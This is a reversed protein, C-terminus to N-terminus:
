VFKKTLYTCLASSVEVILLAEEFAPERGENIHRGKESAYVWIKEVAKDIPKPFLDPHDSIIKGLTAKEEGSIRRAVCELAAVSHQIAGTIDPEPRRSIDVLAEHLEGQATTLSTSNLQEEAVQVTQEYLATGRIEILGEHMKWGIGSEHFYENIESEYKNIEPSLPYKRLEAAVGEIIDYVKYWECSDLLDQVESDIDPFDSWNCSDPRKKLVHCVIGRLKSPRLGCVYALQVVFGRLDHPADHIIKIEKQQPQHFGYRKSFHENM